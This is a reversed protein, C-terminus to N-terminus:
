IIQKRLNLSNLFCFFHLSIKLSLNIANYKTLSGKCFLSLSTTRRFTNSDEESLSPQFFCIKFLRRRPLDKVEKVYYPISVADTGFTNLFDAYYKATGQHHRTKNKRECHKLTFKTRFSM